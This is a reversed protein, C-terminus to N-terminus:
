ILGQHHDDKLGHEFFPRQKLEEERYRRYKEIETNTKRQRIIGIIFYM